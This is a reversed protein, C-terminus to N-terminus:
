RNKSKLVANVERVVKTLDFPKSLIFDVGEEKMKEKPTPVAWGTILGVPMDPDIKKIEKAVEWGSMEPMGLDTLVLNFDGQKFEELGEKGTEALTVRHDEHQFIGGLVDRVGEEDDIILIKRSSIKQVEKLKEEDQPVELPIPISITFITGKGEISEVKIKGKHRKVIGYCISLGLGSAKPGKTTFFPDFIKGKIRHPVGKGTDTFYLLIENQRAETRITIEGGERMSEVSNFMLNTLVEMLESRSGLLPPLKGLREKIEITVGKAEAEDKWRPSTSSIASRVIENLDIKTFDRSSVERGTFHQLRRVTEGGEYATRAITQLRDKIEEEKYRKLGRELLQANGLIIALLNNFDHAVGGAMEGLARLKESEIFTKETEKRKTIDRAIGLVLSKGKFKTPYTSIEVTVQKGDKRNLIFEDPGTSRGLVNKALNAATKPIQKPSLLKLKLFNKGILEERKYGVLEEAARNGDIFTGKLDNLYIADPAFEFLIRLREESSKLEEEAKKRETIDQVMSVIGVPKREKGYILANVYSLILDKNYIRLKRVGKTAGRALLENIDEQIKGSEKEETLETAKRGLLAKKSIGLIKAYAENVELYRGELDTLAAGIPLFNFLRRYKEEREKLMEEARKRETIDHQTSVFNLIKGDKDKFAGIKAYSIFETGDKRKNHIEGEWYGEKEITDMTEKVVAELKPGANLISPYKGILEGKKYGFLEDMAKNTYIMKADPSTINIAEKAIEITKLLKGREEEAKKRESSEILKWKGERRILAFQHHSVVDILESAGCKDLSYSCIAIMRYKGIADNVKEEYDAFGRWDKKELWATNGTARLGDYGKTLAQNLKDIWSSLVRELNFAGDKPYWETHPVIEIQGKKLYHDFNPVAKGMTEKVEKEKLPESTVWICFENNELGAKFYPVLIDVLDEKTQYFQCFHTGWPVDGIIDIGMKRIKEEM